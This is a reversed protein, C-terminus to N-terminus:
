RHVLRTPDPTVQVLLIDGEAGLTSISFGSSQGRQRLTELWCSRALVCFPRGAQGAVRDWDELAHLAHVRRRCYFATAIPYVSNRVRGTQFTHLVDGSPAVRQVLPALRRIESEGERDTPRALAVMLGGVAAALALRPWWPQLRLTTRELCLAALLAASPYMPALYWSWKTRALSLAVPVAVLWSWAFMTRRCGSRFGLWGGVCALAIIAWGWPIHRETLFTLYYAGTPPAGELEPYINSFFQTFHRAGYQELFASGHLCYQHLHWPTALMLGVVWSWWWASQRLCRRDRAAMIYTLQVVLALGAAAGKTMLAAGFAVGGFWHWRPDDLGRWFGLLHVALALTLPADLQGATAYRAFEPVGLLILAALVGTRIGFFGLVCVATLAGALLAPLRASWESVGFSAFSGAVAWLALPPKHFWPAGNWHVTLWDSRDLLERSAEAYWAEDWHRLPGHVVRPALLLAAVVFVLAAARAKHFDSM